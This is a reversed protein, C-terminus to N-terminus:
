KGTATCGPVDDFAMRQADWKVFQRRLGKTVANIGDYTQIDLWIGAPQHGEARQISGPLGVCDLVLRPDAGESLHWAKTEVVYARSGTTGLLVLEVGNGLLNGARLFSLLMQGEGITRVRGRPDMLRVRVGPETEFEQPLFASAVASWGSPTNARQLGVETAPLSRAADLDHQGIEANMATGGHVEFFVRRGVISLSVCDDGSCRKDVLEIAPAVAQKVFELTTEADPKSRLDLTTSGCTRGSGILLFSYIGLPM